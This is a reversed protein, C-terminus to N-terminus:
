CLLGLLSIFGKITMGFYFCFKGNHDQSVFFPLSPAGKTGRKGSLAAKRSGLM